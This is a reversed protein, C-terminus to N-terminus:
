SHQRPCHSAVLSILEDIEFPKAVAVRAGALIAQALHQRSASMAVVPVLQAHVRLWQLVDLGSVRPLMLDLFVVCFHQAPDRRMELVRIAAAGDAVAVVSFGAEELVEEILDRISAEDEVVLVEHQGGGSTQPAV